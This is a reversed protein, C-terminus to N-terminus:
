HEDPLYEGDKIVIYFYEQGPTSVIFGVHMNNGESELLSKMTATAPEWSDIIENLDGESMLDLIEQDMSIQVIFTEDDFFLDTKWGASEMIKLGDELIPMLIEVAQKEEESKTDYYVTRENNIDMDTVQKEEQKFVKYLSNCGTLMSFSMISVLGLSLLKKLM